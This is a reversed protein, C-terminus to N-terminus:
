SAESPHVQELLAVFRPHARLRDLQPEGKMWILWAERARAAEELLALAREDEGFNAHVLAVHYPSVHRTRGKEELEALVGRASAEDGAMAYVDALAALVPMSNRDTVLAAREAEAISEEFRGLQALTWGLVWRSLVFNPDLELSRRLHTLSEEFRRAHYFGWGLTQSLHPSVPDLELARAGVREFEEFRGQAALQLCYFNHATSYKPNLEIARKIHREAAPWDWQGVDAFNLAAYAEALHPDLEIAREAERRAETFCEDSPRVGYVGLWNYYDAVGAHALAYSPDLRIAEQYFTIARAFADESISNWHYRGRLYAEYAKADDTGHAAVREREAGSLQPVLAVAVQESISDHVALIDTHDADFKEAWVPSRDSVRVLQVTVRLRAGALLVRGDLVFAVGLARGAEVPDQADGGFRAVASTPRVTLSRINSLRTILADALGLGLYAAGTDRGDEGPNVVKFPLIAVTREEPTTASSRSRSARPGSMRRLFEDFRPDSRLSDLHPDVRVFTLGVAHEREAQELWRLAEDTDGLLSYIVAIEYATVGREEHQALLQELIQRAEDRRGT